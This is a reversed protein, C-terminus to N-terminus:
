GNPQQAGRLARIREILSGGPLAVQPDFAPLRNVTEFYWLRIERSMGAQIDVTRQRLKVGLEKPPEVGSPLPAHRAPFLQWASHKRFRALLSEPRKHDAEDGSWMNRGRWIVREFHEKRRGDPELYYGSGHKSFHDSDYLRLTNGNQDDCYYFWQLRPWKHLDAVVQENATLEQQGSAGNLLSEWGDLFKQIDPIRVVFSAM